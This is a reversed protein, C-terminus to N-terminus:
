HKRSISSETHLPCYAELARRWPLVTVDNKLRRPHTDKLSVVYLHVKPFRRRFATLTDQSITESSTKCEFAMLPGKPATVLIDVEQKGERWVSFEDPKEYYDRLRKLENLFFTEFLHGKEQPTPPDVLRNQLARIVGCDFFYFKGRAKKRESRDWPWLFSGLLTDELISFYEKVTSMPVACDRAISAFEIVEGNMQAAVNLFRQFAGVNRTLAEAQVEEKIYVTGYTKLQRRADDERNELVSSVIRPLTGYSLAKEIDFDHGIEITTLPHLRLDLARGGLLNASGRRLKRASSGSLIFRLNLEEIGKQVYDLLVPVRQIEDVIVVQGKKLAKLLEWFEKPARKFKLEEEPDLLDIFLDTKLRRLLYTKGTMRPGFLFLSDSIHELKLLRPFEM